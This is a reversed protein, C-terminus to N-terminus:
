RNQIRRIRRRLRQCHPRASQRLGEGGAPEARCILGFFETLLTTHLLLVYPLRISRWQNYKSKALYAHVYFCPKPDPDAHIHMLKLQQIRIRMGIRIRIYSPFIASFILFFHLTKM